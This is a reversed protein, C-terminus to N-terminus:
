AFGRQERSRALKVMLQNDALFYSNFMSVAKDAESQASMTVFAFGKSVGSNRDEVVNVSTVEGAKAFLSYLENQTTTRSLNRICVKAEM